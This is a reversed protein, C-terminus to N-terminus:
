SGKRILRAHIGIKVGESHTGRHEIVSGLHVAVPQKRRPDAALVAGMLPIEGIGVTKKVM